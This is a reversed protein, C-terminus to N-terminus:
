PKKIFAADTVTDALAEYERKRRPSALQYNLSHRFYTLCNSQDARHYINEPTRWEPWDYEGCWTVMKVPLGLKFQVHKWFADGGHEFDYRDNRTVIKRQYESFLKPPLWIGTTNLHPSIQYSATAGYFGPGHKEFAEVMRKMWGQRRVFTSGGFCVMLDTDILRSVALYGGIDQGIDDHHYLTLDPLASFLKLTEDDPQGDQCVLITRHEVGPPNLRYSEVLKRAQARHPDDNVHIIVLTATM